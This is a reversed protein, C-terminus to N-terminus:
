KSRHRERQTSRRVKDEVNEGMGRGGEKETKRLQEEELDREEEFESKMIFKQENGRRTEEKM